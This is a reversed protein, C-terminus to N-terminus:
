REKGYFMENIDEDEDLFNEPITVQGRLLGLTRKGEPQHPVLDVLPLNNKAIVVKEGHFVMDVLKSLQTKAESINIIMLDGMSLSWM